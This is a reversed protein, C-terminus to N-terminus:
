YSVANPMEAGGGQGESQCRQPNSETDSARAGELRAGKGGQWRRGAIGERSAGSGEAPAGCMGRQRPARAGSDSREARGRDTRSESSNGGERRVEM